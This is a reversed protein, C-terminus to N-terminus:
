EKEPEYPELLVDTREPDKATDAGESSISTHAPDIPKPEYLPFSVGNHGCAPCLALKDGENLNATLEAEGYVKELEWQHGCERCVAGKYQRESM